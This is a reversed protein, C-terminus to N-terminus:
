GTQKNQCNECYITGLRVHYNVIDGPLIEKSCSDCISGVTIELEEFGDLPYRIGNVIKPWPRSKVMMKRYSEEMAMWRRIMEDSLGARKLCGKMINERYDFMENSIVMWHHANRPRDGFYVKEGTLVQNIFAYQKEVARQKTVGHFFPSLMPDDYVLTYFENLIKSLLLGGELAEWLALDPEPYISEEEVFEMANIDDGSKITPDRKEKRKEQFIFADTHINDPQANAKLSAERAADVMEEHGCLYIGWDDLKNHDSLAVVNPRGKRLEGTEEEGSICGVYNFNSHASSLANLDDHLYLEEENKAGHYLFINGTHGSNIADRAIGILPSLGTGNGILLLNNDTQGSQYYCDGFPGQFEISDGENLDDVIWNSVLGNEMRKVHLELHYDISPVSALSYSRPAGGPHRINIFQGAHYYLPVNTELLLRYVNEALKEKKAVFATSYIEDVDPVTIHMDDEPQCKCPLFYGVKALYPKIGRQSKEPITGKLVKMMCTQCSGNRCSFPISVGQRLFADLVTEGAKCQVAKNEFFLTNM